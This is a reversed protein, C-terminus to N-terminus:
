RVVVLKGRDSHGLAQFTYFYLGASVRRGSDSTMDWGTSHLGAPLPANQLERVLRGQADYIALRVQGPSRLYFPIKAERGAPNPSAPGLQASLRGAPLWAPIPVDWLRVPQPQGNVLASAPILPGILYRPDQTQPATVEVQEASFVLDGRGEDARLEAVPQDEFWLRSGRIMMGASIDAWARGAGTFRLLTQDADGSLTRGGVTVTWSGTRDGRRFVALDTRDAEVIEFALIDPSDTPLRRAAMRSPADDTFSALVVLDANQRLGTQVTLVRHKWDDTGLSDSRMSELTDPSLIQVAAVARGRVISATRAAVDWSFDPQGLNNGSHWFWRARARTEGAYDLDDHFLIYPAQDKGRPLIFFHRRSRDVLPPEETLTFNWAASDDGAAMSPAEGQGFHWRLLRGETPADLRFGTWDGHEPQMTETNHTGNQPPWGEYGTDWFLPEGRSFVTFQNQDFQAHGAHRGNPRFTAPARCEFTILTARPDSALEGAADLQHLGTRFIVLGREPFARSPPMASPDLFAAPPVDPDPWGLLIAVANCLGTYNLPGLHSFLVGRLDRGAANPDFPVAINRDIEAPTYTTFFLHRIASPARVDAFALLWPWARCFYPNLDYPPVNTDNLPTGGYRDQPLQEYVLWTGAQQVGAGLPVQVQEKPPLYAALRQAALAFPLAINMGYNSYLLGEYGSGGPYAYELYRSVIDAAVSLRQARGREQAGSLHGEQALAALGRGAYAIGDHNNDLRWTVDDLCGGQDMKEVLTSLAEVSHRVQTSDMEAYLWDFALAWGALLEGTNLDCFCPPGWMPYGLQRWTEWLNLTYARYKATRDYDPEGTRLLHAMALITLGQFAGGQQGANSCNIEGWRRGTPPETILQDAAAVISRYALHMVRERESWTRPADTSHTWQRLQAIREPNLILRPHPPLAATAVRPALFAVLLLGALRIRHKM